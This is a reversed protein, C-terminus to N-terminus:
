DRTGAHTSAGARDGGDGDVGWLASNSISDQILSFIICCPSSFNMYPIMSDYGVDGDNRTATERCIVCCCPLKDSDDMTENAENTEMCTHRTCIMNSINQFM